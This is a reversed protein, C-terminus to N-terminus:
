GRKTLCGDLQSQFHVRLQCPCNNHGYSKPIRAYKSLWYELYEVRKYSNKQQLEIMKQVTVINCVVASVYNCSLIVVVFHCYWITVVTFVLELNCEDM